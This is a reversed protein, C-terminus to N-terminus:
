TAVGAQRALEQWHVQAQAYQAPGVPARGYWSAAFLASLPSFAAVLGHQGRARLIRLFSGDTRWDRYDVHGREDLLVLAAMHLAGLAARYDGAREAAAARELWGQHSLPAAPAPGAETPQRRAPAVSLALRVVLWALVVAVIALGLWMVTRGIGAPLGVGGMPLHRLVGRLLSSLWNNITAQLREWWNDGVRFEGRALVQALTRRAAAPDRGPGPQISSALSRLAAAARRMGAPGEGVWQRLGRRLARNDAPRPPQGPLEVTLRDPLAELARGAAQKGEAAPSDAAATLRDAAQTLLHRYQSAPIAHAASPLSLAAALVAVAGVWHLSTGPLRGTM